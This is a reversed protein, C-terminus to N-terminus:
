TLPDLPKGEERGKGADARATSGQWVAPYNQLVRQPLWSHSESTYGDGRAGGRAEGQGPESPPLPLYSPQQVPLHFGCCPLFSDRRTM